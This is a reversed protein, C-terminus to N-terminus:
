ATRDFMKRISDVNNMGSTIKIIHFIFIDYFFFHCILFLFIFLFISFLFYFFSLACTLQHSDFRRGRAGSGGAALGELRDCTAGQWMGGFV